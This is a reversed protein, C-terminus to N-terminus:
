YQSTANWNKFIEEHDESPWSKRGRRTSCKVNRACTRSSPKPKGATGANPKGTRSNLRKTQIWHLMWQKWPSTKSCPEWTRRGCSRSPHHSRQKSEFFKGLQRSRSKNQNPFTNQKVVREMRWPQTHRRKGWPTGSRRRTPSTSPSSRSCSVM